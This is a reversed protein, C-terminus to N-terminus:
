HKRELFEVLMRERTIMWGIRRGGFALAPQPGRVLLAKESRMKVMHADLDDVEFCLHHFGGGKQALSEVPSGPGTSELLEIQSGDVFHLFVARVQQVPDAILESAGIAGTSTKWAEAATELPATVVYGVHHLAPATM